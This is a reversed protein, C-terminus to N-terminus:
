IRIDTHYRTSKTLAEQARLEDKVVALADRVRQVMVSDGHTAFLLEETARTMAVYLLRIEEDLAESRMPMVQLGAVVVVPFELGKAANLTLVKISSEGWDIQQFGRQGMSQVPLGHRVLAAEIPPMLFKARCLVALDQLPRGEAHARALRDAILMAETEADRAEILQPMAGRRGGSAPAVRQMSDDTVGDMGGPAVESPPLLSQALRMSTALVEATNRYNTRLWYTRGRAEIGVSAFSFLRRAKQHRSQADDYVVLLHQTVPDVMRVVMRLWLDDFNHAEDVLLATYLDSPVVGETMARDVTRPLLDLYDVARRDTPVTLACSRVLDECWAHFTRVQVREDIGRARLVAELRGALMRSYCLILVPRDPWAQTMLQQARYILIMTKGSGVAGHIVRHGDGLTRVLQEQKLDLVQMLEPVSSPPPVTDFHDAVQHGLLRNVAVPPGGLDVDLVDDIVTCLADGETEAVMAEMGFGSPYALASAAVHDMSSATLFPQVRMEPYLHWRIRDRQPLTLTSPYHVTCMGWLRQVFTVADVDDAVDEDILTRRAPFIAKMQSNTADNLDAARWNPLALGWGYPFMLKGSFSGGGRVLSPDVQMLAVMALTEERVRRLPSVTTSLGQPVVLQLRDRDMAQIQVRTWDRIELLLLGWRPSLVLFNPAYGRPGMPLNHWVLYDDELCRRLQHLVRREAPTCRRDIHTLGQPFIAMPQFFTLGYFDLDASPERRWASSLFTSSATRGGEFITLM